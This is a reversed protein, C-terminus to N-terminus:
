YRIALEYLKKDRFYYEGFLLSYGNELLHNGLLHFELNNILIQYYNYLTQNINGDSIGHKSLFKVWNIGRLSIPYSEKGDKLNKDQDIYDRILRLGKNKTIEEQNLFDFYNLNYTWLKGYLGFNWDIVSKFKYSQNLFTFANTGNFTNSNVFSSNWNLPKPQTLLHKTYEKNFLRTRIRYYFQYYIQRLKLYKLTNVLLILKSRDM